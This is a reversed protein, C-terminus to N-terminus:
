AIEALVNFSLGRQAADALGLVNGRGHSKKGRCIRGPDAAFSQDDGPTIASFFPISRSLYTTSLQEFDDGPSRTMAFSSPLTATTVPPLVPIPKAVAFRKTASPAYTKM